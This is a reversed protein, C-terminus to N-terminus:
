WGKKKLLFIIMAINLNKVFAVTGPMILGLAYVPKGIVFTRKKALNDLFDKVSDAQTCTVITGLEFLCHGDSGGVIPKRLERNWKVANFNQKMTSEGNMTEIADIDELLYSRKPDKM